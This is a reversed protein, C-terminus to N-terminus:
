QPFRAKLHQDAILVKKAFGKMLRNQNERLKFVPKGPGECGYEPLKAHMDYKDPDDKSQEFRFFDSASGKKIQEMVHGTVQMGSFAGGTTQEPVKGEEVPVAADPVIPEGTGQMGEVNTHYKPM